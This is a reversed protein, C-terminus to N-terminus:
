VWTVHWAHGRRLRTRMGALAQRRLRTRQASTCARSTRRALLAHSRQMQAAPLARLSDRNVRHKLHMSLRKICPSRCTLVM